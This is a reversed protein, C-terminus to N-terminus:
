LLPEDNIVLRDEGDSDSGEVEDEIPKENVPNEITPQTVNKDGNHTPFDCKAEDIQVDQTEHTVDALNLASRNSEEVFIQAEDVTTVRLRKSKIVYIQDMTLRYSELEEVSMERLQEFSTVKDAALRCIQAANLFETLALTEQTSCTPVELATEMPKATEQHRNSMIEREREDFREITENMQREADDANGATKERVWFEIQELFLRKTSENLVDGHTFRCNDADINSPHPMGLYYFKCPFESHMHTCANGKTCENKLYFRCVGFQRPLRMQHNYICVKHECRGAVHHLCPLDTASTEPRTPGANHKHLYRIDRKTRFQRRETDSMKNIKLKYMQERHNAENTSAVEDRPLM